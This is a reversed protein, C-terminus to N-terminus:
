DAVEHAPNGWAKIGDSFSTLVNSGMGIIVNSGIRCNPAIKSGSGIFSESGIEVRGLILTQPAIVSFNGIMSEHHIQAGVAVKVFDGLKVNASIYANPYVLLNDPIRTFKSIYASPSIYGSLSKGLQSVLTKRFKPDDIAVIIESTSLHDNAKTHDGLYNFGIEKDRTSFYGTIRRGSQSIDDLLDLDSGIVAIPKQM